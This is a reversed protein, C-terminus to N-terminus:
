HLSGIHFEDVAYRFCHIAPSWYNKDLGAKRKLETIFQKKEPLQAWVSPLFTARHVGDDIVLGDLGPRILESLQEQTSVPMPMLASLVSVEAHLSALEEEV